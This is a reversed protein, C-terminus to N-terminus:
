LTNEFGNLYNLLFNPNNKLYELVNIPVDKAADGIIKLAFMDRFDMRETPAAKIIKERQINQTLGKLVATLEDQDIQIEQCKNFVKFGISIVVSVRPTKFEYGKITPTLSVNLNAVQDIDLFKGIPFNMLLLSTGKQDKKNKLGFVELSIVAETLQEVSLNISLINNKKFEVDENNFDKYCFHLQKVESNNWVSYNIFFYQFDNILKAPISTLKQIKVRIQNTKM